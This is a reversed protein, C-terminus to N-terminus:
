ASPSAFGFFEKGNKTPEGGCGGGFFLLFTLFIKPKQGARTQRARALRLPNANARAGRTRNLKLGGRARRTSLDIAERNSFPERL